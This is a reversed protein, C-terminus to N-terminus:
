KNAKARGKGKGKGGGKKPAPPAPNLIQDLPFYAADTTPVFWPNLWCQMGM